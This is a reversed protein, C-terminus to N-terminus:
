VSGMRQTWINVDHAHARTNTYSRARQTGTQLQLDILTRTHTYVVVDLIAKTAVAQQQKIKGVDFKM